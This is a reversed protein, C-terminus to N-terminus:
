ADFKKLLRDVKAELRDESDRSEASGRHLYASTLVILGFAELFESQWNQLTAEGFQIVFEGARTPQNHDDQDQVYKRWEAFAHTTWSFFFLACVVIGLAFNPWVKRINSSRREQQIAKVLMWVLYSPVLVLAAITTIGFLTDM